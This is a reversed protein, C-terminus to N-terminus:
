ERRRAQSSVRCGLAEGGSAKNDKTDDDQTVVFGDKDGDDSPEEKNDDDQEEKDNTDNCLAALARRVVKTGTLSDLTARAKNDPMHGKAGPAFNAAATVGNDPYMEACSDGRKAGVEGGVAAAALAQLLAPKTADVRAIEDNDSDDKNHSAIKVSHRGKAPM